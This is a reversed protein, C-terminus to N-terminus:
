SCKGKKSEAASDARGCYLDHLVAIVKLARDSSVSYYISQFERRTKVLNEARLRALHQSLASQSLGIRAQLEGVSLEGGLLDCLIMLRRALCEKQRCRRNSLGGADAVHRQFAADKDDHLRALLAIM